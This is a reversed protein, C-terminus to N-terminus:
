FARLKHTMSTQSNKNSDIKDDSVEFVSEIPQPKAIGFGQVFDVGLDTVCDRIAESEVYEAVTYKGLARGFEIIASVTAQDTPNELIDVIFGGDIKLYDVPLDKLSGLSSFGRGFDDLAFECGLKTINEMFNIAAPLNSVAINETIEFIVSAPNAGTSEFARIVFGLFSADSLSPGAINISMRNREPFDEHRGIWNLAKSIISQDISTLLGYREAAPLFAGPFILDNNSDRMRMLIEFHQNGTFDDSVGLIKQCHLEFGDDEIAHHIRRAWRTEGQRQIVNDDTPRFLKVASGGTEKAAYCATDAVNLLTELDGTDESIEVMGISVGVSFVQGEHAIQFQTIAERISEAIEEGKLAPCEEFLLGFEDGGLRAFTDTKRLGDRVLESLDCLLRDGIAHGGSDNVTKFRDLDLYCLCHVSKDVVARRMAQEIRVEFERRNVLGTLPDHTAEHALRRELARAESVDRLVVVTGYSKGEDDTIEAVTEHIDLLEGNARRINGKGSLQLNVLNGSDQALLPCDQGSQPDISRLIADVPKGVINEQRLQTLKEAAPNLYRVTSDSNITVVGDGISALTVALSKSEQKLEATREEVIQELKDMHAVLSRESSNIRRIVQMAILICLGVVIALIIMTRQYVNVYNQEATQISHNAQLKYIEALVEFERYIRDQVPSLREIMLAKADVQNDDLVLDRIEDNIPAAIMSARRINQLTKVEDPSGAMEFLAQRAAIFHNAHGMHQMVVEDIDFPDELILMLQLGIIRERNSRRMTALHQLKEANIKVVQDLEDQISRMGSMALTAMTTMMAIVVLFGTTTMLNTRSFMLFRGTIKGSGM